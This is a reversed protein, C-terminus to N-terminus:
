EIATKKNKFCYFAFAVGLIPMNIRWSIIPVDEVSADTNGNEDEMGMGPNDDAFMLFDSFLIVVFIYAKFIKHIM